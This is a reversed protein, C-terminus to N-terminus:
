LGLAFRGRNLRRKPDFSDKLRRLIPQVAEPTPGFVDCDAKLHPPLSLWTASAFADIGADKISEISPRRAYVLGSGVDACVAWGADALRPLAAPQLSARIPLRAVAGDTALDAVARFTSLANNGDETLDTANPAVARAAVDMMRQVLLDIAEAPADCRVSTQWGSPVNSVVISAPLLQSTLLAVAAAHADEASDYTLQISRSATPAPFVKLNLRTVVGFAGLAGYHLHMMDFGTVNKVVMGGAKANVGDPGMVEVGIVWDKLSGGGLRRPGSMGTAYAGGITSRSDHAADLAISQRNAALAERIQLITCGPEVAMTMNDPEYQLIRNLKGTSIAFEFPGGLNGFAPRTGGGVILAHAGDRQLSRLTEALEQQSEPFRVDTIEDGDVVIPVQEVESSM